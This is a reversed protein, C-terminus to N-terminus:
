ATPLTATWPGRRRLVFRYYAASLAIQAATMLLGPRGEDLDFWSTWTVYGLALLTM